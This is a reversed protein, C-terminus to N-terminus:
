KPACDKPTYGEPIRFSFSAEESDIKIDTHKLEIRTKAPTTAVLVVTTPVDQKGVKIYEGYQLSSETGLIPDKASMKELKFNSSNLFWSVQYSRSQSQLEIPVERGSVLAATAPMGGDGILYAQLTQFDVDLGSMQRLVSFDCLVAERTLPLRMRVSDRDILITAAPLGLKTMNAWILSDKAICVKYSFGISENKAENTYDAKGKLTLTKFQLASAQYKEHLEAQSLGRYRPGDQQRNKCASVALLLLLALLLHGQRM